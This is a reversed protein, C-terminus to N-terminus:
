KPDPKIDARQKIYDRTIEILINEHSLNLDDSSMISVMNDIDLLNLFQMHNIEPERVIEDFHNIIIENCAEM